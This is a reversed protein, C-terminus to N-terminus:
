PAQAKGEEIVPHLFACLAYRCHVLIASIKQANGDKTKPLNCEVRWITEADEGISQRFVEIKKPPCNNAVAVDRVEAQGTACAQASVLFILLFAFFSSRM